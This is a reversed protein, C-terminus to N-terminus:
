QTTAEQELKSYVSACYEEITAPSIETNRIEGLLSEFDNANSTNVVGAVSTGSAGSTSNLQSNSPCNITPACGLQSYLLAIGAGFKM